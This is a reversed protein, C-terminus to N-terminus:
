GKELIFEKLYWICYLYENYMDDYRLEQMNTATAIPFFSNWDSNQLQEKTIDNKLYAGYAFTYDTEFLSKNDQNSNQDLPYNVKINRFIFRYEITIKLRDRNGYGFNIWRNLYHNWIMLYGDEFKYLFTNPINSFGMTTSEEILHGPISISDTGAIFRISMKDNYVIEESTSITKVRNILEEEFGEVPTDSNGLLTKFGSVENSKFKLTIDEEIPSEFVNNDSCGTIITIGLLFIFILKSKKM